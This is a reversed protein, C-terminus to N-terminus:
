AAVVERVRGSFNWLRRDVREPYRTMTPLFFIAGTVLSSIMFGFTDAVPLTLDMMVGGVYLTTFLLVGLSLSIGSMLRLTPRMIAGGDAVPKADETAEQTAEEVAEEAKNPEEEAEADLGARLLNRVAEAQNMYAGEREYEEIKQYLKSPVRTQIHEQGM